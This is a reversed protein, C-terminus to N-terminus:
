LEEPECSDDSEFHKKLLEGTADKSRLSQTRPNLFQDGNTTFRLTIILNLKVPGFIIIIRQPLKRCSETILDHLISNDNEPM